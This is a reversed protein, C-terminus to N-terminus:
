VGNRRRDRTRADVKLYTREGSPSDFYLDIHRAILGEALGFDISGTLTGGSASEIAPVLGGEAFGLPRVTHDRLRPTRMGNLADLYQVGVRKVAAARIVYEGASLRAPISDSTSTGPGRVFGGSAFGGLGAAGVTAGIFSLVDSGGGGNLSRGAALAVASAAALKVAAESIDHAATSLRAASDDFGFGLLDAFKEVIKAAILEAVIRQISGAIGVALRAFAEGLSDVQTITSGLFTALEGQVADRINTGLEAALLASERTRVGMAGLQAALAEAQQVLDPNGLAQAFVLMQQALERLTPLREAEIAALRAAAAEQSLLGQAVQAEIRARETGIAAFVQEVGRQTEEFNLQLTLTDRFRQELRARAADDLDARQGLARRYADTERDIEAETVVRTNGRARQIAIEAQVMQENLARAAVLREAELAQLAATTQITRAQVDALVSAAEADRRIVDAQSDAPESLIADRKATLAAIEDRSAQEIVARRRDFFTTLSVLGQEYQQLVAAEAQEAAAARVRAEDEAASVAADARAKALADGEREAGLLLTRLRGSTADQTSAGAARRAERDRTAQDVQELFARYHDLFSRQDDDADQMARRAVENAERIQGESVLRAVEGVQQLFQMANAAKTKITEFLAQSLAAGRRIAGGLTEGITRALGQEGTAEQAGRAATIVDNLAPVLGLAFQQVAGGAQAGLLALNDNLNKAADAADRDLVLGLRAAEEAARDFGGNALDDLLPLLDIGARAGFLRGAATAKGAGDEFQAMADAVRVLVQDLSLGELDAVSLGLARLTENAEQNGEAVRTLFQSLGRFGTQLANIDTDATRAAFSLVSLAETSVGTKDALNAVADAADIQQKVFAAARVTVYATALRRVNTVVSTLSTALRRHVAEVRSASRGVADQKREVDTLQRSLAKLLATVGADEGSVRVKVQSDAM